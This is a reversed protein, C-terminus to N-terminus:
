EMKYIIFSNYDSDENGKTIRVGIRNFQDVFKAFNIINVRKFHNIEEGNNDIVNEEGKYRLVSFIFDYCTRYYDFSKRINNIFGNEDPKPINVYLNVIEGDDMVRVRLSDSKRGENVFHTIEVRGEMENGIDLDQMGYQEWEPEYQQVKGSITVYQVASREEEYDAEFELDDFSIHNTREEVKEVIQPEENKSKLAM